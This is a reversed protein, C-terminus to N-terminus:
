GKNNRIGYKDLKRYFNTRDIGYIRAAKSINGGATKLAKVVLIKDMKETAEHLVDVYKKDPEIIDICSFDFGKLEPKKEYSLIINNEEIIGDCILVARRIANRLQRINGPWSYSIIKDIARNSIGTVRKGLERSAENILNNVILPIDELRERLPPIEIVFEVLRYYLDQRFNGEEVLKSLDRNTAAIIRVDVEKEMKSGIPLIKKTEVVRLLRQQQSLPLNGIEDLFLTGGDAMEFKGPKTEVAGTFAGKVFGFLESEILNEPIAGCDVPVFRKDKRKSRNHIFNAIVEKGVGTEGYLLVTIDTEAVINIQEIVKRIASSSGFIEELEGKAYVKKRLSKVEKKLRANELGRKVTMLLVDYIDGYATIIIVVLGADILSRIETLVQWGDKKPMKMDLILCDIDDNLVTVVAKEGNDVTDVLFGAEELIEKINDRTDVNDDAILIKEKM